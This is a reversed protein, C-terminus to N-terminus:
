KGKLIDDYVDNKDHIAFQQITRTNIEYDARGRKIKNLYDEVSKCYYHNIRIKNGSFPILSQENVPEFNENVIQNEKCQFSHPTLPQEILKPKVFCKVHNNNDYSYESRYLYNDKINGAPRIKHGSSGYMVWNIALGAYNNFDKLTESLSKEIPVVFEDLDIIGVWDEKANQLCHYYVKLQIAPEPTYFYNINNYQSIIEKTNDTSGNDYIYFTNVGISMHYDLWEKLDLGENKICACIAITQKKTKNLLM